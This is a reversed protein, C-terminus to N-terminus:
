VAENSSIYQGLQYREVEDMTREVKELGFVIQNTGKNVYMCIYKILNCYVVHIYTQFIRSLLPCYPVRWKDDIKIDRISNGCNMRVKPEDDTSHIDAMVLRHIM